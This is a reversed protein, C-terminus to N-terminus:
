RSGRKSFAVALFSQLGETESDTLEGFAIGVHTKGEISRRVNVQGPVNLCVRSKIAKAELLFPGGLTAGRSLAAPFDPQMCRLGSDSVDVLSASITAAGCRIHARGDVSVRVHRRHQTAESGLADTAAADLDAGSAGPGVIAGTPADPQAPPSAVAKARYSYLRRVQRASARRRGVSEVGFARREAPSLDSWNAPMRRIFSLAGATAEALLQVGWSAAVSVAQIYSLPVASADYPLDFLGPDDIWHPKGATIAQAVDPWRVRALLYPVARDVLVLYREEGDTEERPQPILAGRPKPTFAPVHTGSLEVPM